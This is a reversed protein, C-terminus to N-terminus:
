HISCPLNRESECSKEPDIEQALAKELDNLKLMREAGTKMNRLKADGSSLEADGLILVYPISEKSAYELSKKLRRGTMEMGISYGKGRLSNAIKMAQIETGLPIIFLELPSRSRQEQLLTLATYIVDLGFSLGVAPYDKGNSLFSGIISDYRGGAALSSTLPGETLFAEFVTGTYIDLGRALFPSFQMRDIIGLELLAGRLEKLELGGKSILDYSSHKDVFGDLDAAASSMADFLVKIQNPTIGKTQLEQCVGEEGIKELKDVTLIVENVLDDSINCSLIIGSLLKRNNYSVYVPLQLRDFVEFIISLLESEALMSKIGVVDVDCQTFERVRGLKVPGDRFVKGIEYRKFPMRMEPNMGIVRAFPVTLDYRLGLSRQGQDELKYVEKLIEAGGAYKSALVDYYCLTPTELPLYGYCQFVEEMVKKLKNRLYQEEPMYDKTGKLNKLKYEM